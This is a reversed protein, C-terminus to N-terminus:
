ALTRPTWGAVRGASDWTSSFFPTRGNSRAGVTAVFPHLVRGPGNVRRASGAMEKRPGTASSFDFRQEMNPVASSSSGTSFIIMVEDEAKIIDWPLLLLLKTMLITSLPADSWNKSSAIM